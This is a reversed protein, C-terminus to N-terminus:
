FLFIVHVFLIKIEFSLTYTFLITIIRDLLTFSLTNPSFHTPNNLKFVYNINGMAAWAIVHSVGLSLSPVSFRVSMSIATFTM